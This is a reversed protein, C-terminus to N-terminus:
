CPILEPGDPTDRIDWGAGVIEARLQDARGWQGHKRALTREAVLAQVAASPEATAAAAAEMGEAAEQIRDWVSADIGDDPAPRQTLGLTELSVSSGAECRLSQGDHIWTM